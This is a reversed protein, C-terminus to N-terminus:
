KRKEFTSRSGPSSLPRDLGSRSVRRRAVVGLTATNEEGAKEFLSKLPTAIKAREELRDIWLHVPTAYEKRDAVSIALTSDVSQGRHLEAPMPGGTGLLFGEIYSHGELRRCELLFKNIVRAHEFKWGCKGPFRYELYEGDRKGRRRFKIRLPTLWEWQIDSFPTRLEVAHVKIAQAERNTVAVQLMCAIRGDELEFLMSENIGGIQEIEVKPLEVEETPGSVDVPSGSRELAELMARRREASLVFKDM